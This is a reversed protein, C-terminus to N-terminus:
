SVLQAFLHELTAAPDATIGTHVDGPVIITSTPAVLWHFRESAPGRAVAGAHPDGAAVAELARLQLDLADLDLEPALARLRARPVAWRLGLYGARRCHLLVGVNVAEGRQADPVARLLAYSFAEGGPAM